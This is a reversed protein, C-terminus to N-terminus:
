AAKGRNWFKREADTLSDQGAIAADIADKRWHERGAFIVPPPMRGSAVEKLFAAESADLYEAATRRKM